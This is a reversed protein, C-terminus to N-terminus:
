LVIEQYRIAEAVAQVTNAARLKGRINLLHKAVTKESVALITSIEWASKGAATWLLIERERATLLEQRRPADQRDLARAAASRRFVILALILLAADDESLEIPRDTTLSVLSREFRENFVPVTLGDYVGIEDYFDRVIKDSSSATRTLTERWRFAQSSVHGLQWVPDILPLGLHQYADLVEEKFDTVSVGKRFGHDPAQWLNVVILRNFGFNAALRRLENTLDDISSDQQCREIFKLVAARLSM